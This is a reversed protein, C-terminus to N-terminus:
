AVSRRRARSAPRLTQASPIPQPPLAKLRLSRLPRRPPRLPSDPNRSQPALGPPLLCPDPPLVDSRRSAAGAPRRTTADSDQRRVRGGAEQDKRGFDFDLNEEAVEADVEANEATLPEEVEASVKQVFEGGLMARADDILQKFAELAATARASTAQARHGRGGGEVDFLEDGARDAGFSGDHDQRDRTSSKNICRLLAVSDDPNQLLKLYSIMDKIEAREYFSFGGVVHYKLQYRRMAEEFLRSQFNTRYLVAARPEEGNQLAERVYKAIADAVFLAENEGDPAEYYGIMAGGQRETWLNKGKRKLNNAVVASAAELIV